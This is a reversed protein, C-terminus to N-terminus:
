KTVAKLSDVIGDPADMINMFQGMGLDPFALAIRFKGPLSYIKNGSVLVAYPLYATHKNDATDIKELINKDAGEGDNIAIGVLVEDKGPIAVEFIKALGKNDASLNRHVADLAEKHSDFSGLEDHDDFYPMFAMYHYGNLKRKSHGKKSGFPKSDGFLAKLSKDVDSIDQMQYAYSMYIPNVYSVQVEKDTKTVAVRIVAGYGGFETKAANALLADSTVIFITRDPISDYEGVLKFDSQQLKDRTATVAAAYDTVQETVMYYPMFRPKKKRKAEATIVSFCLIILLLRTIFNKM